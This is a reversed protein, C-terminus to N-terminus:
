VGRLIHSGGYYQHLQSVQLM